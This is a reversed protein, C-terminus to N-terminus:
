SAIVEEFQKRVKLMDGRYEEVVKKVAAKGKYEDPNKNLTRMETKLM